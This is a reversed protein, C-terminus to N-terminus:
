NIYFEAVYNLGSEKCIMHLTSGVKNLQWCERSELTVFDASYGGEKNGRFAVLEGEILGYYNHIDTIADYFLKGTPPLLESKLTAHTIDTNVDYVRIATNWIIVLRYTSM